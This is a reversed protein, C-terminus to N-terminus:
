VDRRAAAVQATTVAFPNRLRHMAVEGRDSSRPAPTEDPTPPALFQTMRRPNIPTM